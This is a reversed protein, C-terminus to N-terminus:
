RTLTVMEAGKGDAVRTGPTLIQQQRRLERALTSCVTRQGRENPMSLLGVPCVRENEWGPYDLVPYLCVGEVTVDLGRATEVESCVYHLWAPRASGEAGTEAIFVPRDYRREAEALMEHLPRYAHHGLPITSGGFYWQNDPYFNLGVLDLLDPSGGLEPELRGTLLDLSEFQSLRKSEAAEIDQPSDPGALVNILPEACVFKARPDVIRIERSAAIAARVLQRNLEPGRDLACPNFRGVHGGAWAWFAMENIPCYYPTGEGEDRILAATAAAFRAFREIFDASWIDIDDPWGYHCLDWIVQTGCGRAAHLMPLVSSWDYRGPSKEILHWRVSDRVTTIGHHGLSQYDEVVLRDHATAALLDLRRGDARRHTSSEFGGLFFSTFANHARPTSTTSRELCTLDFREHRMSTEPSLHAVTPPKHNVSPKSPARICGM